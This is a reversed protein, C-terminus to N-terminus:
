INKMKKIDEFKEKIKRLDKFQLNSLDITRTKDQLKLEIEFLKINVSNIDSLIITELNKTDPLLLRLETDDWEIYYKRVYLNVAGMILFLLGQFTYIVSNWDGSPFNSNFENTLAKILLIIGFITFLGGFVIFFRVLFTSNKFVYFRTM